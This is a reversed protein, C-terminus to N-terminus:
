QRDEPVSYPEAVELEVFELGFVAELEPLRRGKGRSCFAVAINYRKVSDRFVRSQVPSLCAVESFQPSEMNACIQLSMYRLTDIKAFIEIIIRYLYRCCWYLEHSYMSDGIRLLLLVDETKILMRLASAVPDPIKTEVPELRDGGYQELAQRYAQSAILADYPTALEATEDIGSSSGLDLNLQNREMFAAFGNHACISLEPRRLSEFPRPRKELVSALKEALRQMEQGLEPSCKARAGARCVLWLLVVNYRVSSIRVLDQTHVFAAAVRGLYVLALVFKRLMREKEAAGSDMRLGMEYYGVSEEIRKEDILYEAYYLYPVHSGPHRALVEAITNEGARHLRVLAGYTDLYVASGEERDVQELVRAAEEFNKEKFLREISERWAM